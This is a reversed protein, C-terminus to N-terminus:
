VVRVKKIATVARYYKSSEKNPVWQMALKITAPEELVNGPRLASAVRMAGVPRHHQPAYVPPGPEVRRRQVISACFDEEGLVHGM